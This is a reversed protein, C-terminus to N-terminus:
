QNRHTGHIGWGCVVPGDIDDLSRGFWTKNEPGVPDAVRKLDGPQTARFAFLNLVAIRGCGWLRSFGICRRITPDDTTADATSPNLLIFAASREGTGGQRTLVYRYRGCQSIVANRQPLLLTM